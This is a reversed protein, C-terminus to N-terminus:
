QSIIKNSKRLNDIAWLPQLNTYHCLKYLEEESNASSLPIIHDIHWEDRNEWTMGNVFQKELHEKLYEPTCGVIDFTKLQKHKLYRSIRGRVIAKLRFLVDVQKRQKNYNNTYNPNNQRFRKRKELVKDYNEVEWIKRYEQYYKKNESNWRFNYEKIKEKNELRYKKSEISQCERCYSRVGCKVKSMKNFETLEKEVGCKSCVKTNM